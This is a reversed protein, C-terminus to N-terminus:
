LFALGFRKADRIFSSGNITMTSGSMAFTKVVDSSTFLAKRANIEAMGSFFVFDTKFYNGTPFAFGCFGVVRRLFLREWGSAVAMQAGDMRERGHIRSLTRQGVWTRKM